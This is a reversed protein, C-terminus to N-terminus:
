GTYTHTNTRTRACAHTHTNHMHAHAFHHKSNILMTCDLKCLMRFSCEWAALLDVYM